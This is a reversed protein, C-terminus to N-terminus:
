GVNSKAEKEITTTEPMFDEPRLVEIEGVAQTALVPDGKVWVIINQHCRGVKRSKQFQGRVRLPLSGIANVLIIENYFQFGAEAAVGEMAPVLGRFFGTSQDRVESIVWCCFCNDKLAKFAGTFVKRMGALFCEWSLNSMDGPDDSYRELDFYPPCTFVFDYKGLDRWPCDRADGKIWGVKGIKGVDGPWRQRVGPWQQQNAVLQDPLLDVGTYDRGLLGAVVGRVSGGAFPDLVRGKPPCFWTYALECIVPDFISTGGWGAHGEFEDRRMMSGGQVFVVGLGKRDKESLRPDDRVMSTKGLYVSNKGYGGGGPTAQHKKAGTLLVRASVPDIKDHMGRGVFTLPKGGRKMGITRGTVFDVSGDKNPAHSFTLPKSGKRGLVTDSFKLLNEGRGLESEIGLSLWSRKRDQWYGQRTDFISFPPILFSKQLAGSLDLNHDALLKNIDLQSFGTGAELEGASLGEARLKPLENFLELLLDRNWSSFESARNDAIAFMAAEAEDDWDVFIVPVSERKWDRGEAEAKERVAKCRTHGARVTRGRRDAIIPVLFGFQEIFKSLKKAAGDNERPNRDWMRLSGLPVYEVQVQRDTM